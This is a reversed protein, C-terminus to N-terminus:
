VFEKLDRNIKKEVTVITDNHSGGHAVILIEIIKFGRKKGLGNSNWGFTIAYGGSKIKDKALDYFITIGKCYRGNYCENAQHLSYPPDLLTGPVSNNSLGELLKKGDIQKEYPFVDVMNKYDYRELLEKIPKIQFTRKNPM